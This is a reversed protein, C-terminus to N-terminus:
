IFTSCLAIHSSDYPKGYRIAIDISERYFDGMADSLSLRFATQPHLQSFNNILPLLINRGTDSPISLTIEGQLILEDQKLCNESDDM